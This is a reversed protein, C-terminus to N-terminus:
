VDVLGNHIAYSVLESHSQVGLKELIRKRYTSITKVSLHMEEAIQSVRLGAVLLEMVQYERNSLSEHPQGDGAGQQKLLVQLERPFVEVGKCVQTIADVVQTLSCSKHLYGSAGQQVLRVVFQDAAHASLILIYVDPYRSKIQAVLDAGGRGPLSLDLVVVEVALTALQQLCEGSSGAEAVVQLTQERRESGLQNIGVALTERFVAHDDVLLVRCAPMSMVTSWRLPKYWRPLRAM